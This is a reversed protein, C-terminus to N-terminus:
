HDEQCPTRGAAAQRRHDPCHEDEEGEVGVREDVGAAWVILIVASDGDCSFPWPLVVDRRQKCLLKREQIGHQHKTRELRLQGGRGGQREALDARQHCSHRLRSTPGPLAPPGELREASCCTHYMRIAM